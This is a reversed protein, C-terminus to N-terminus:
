PIEMWICSQDTHLIKTMQILSNGDMNIFNHETYLIQNLSDENLDPELQNPDLFPVGHPSDKEDPDTFKM